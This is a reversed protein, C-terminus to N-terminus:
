RLFGRRQTEQDTVGRKYLSEILKAAAQREGAKAGKDLALRALKKEKETLKM